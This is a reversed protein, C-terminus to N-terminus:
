AKEHYRAVEQATALGRRAFKIRKLGSAEDPFTATLKASLNLSNRHEMNIVDHM